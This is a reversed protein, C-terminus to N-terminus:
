EEPADSPRGSWRKKAGGKAAGGKAAGGKAAGGKAAGGKAGAGKRTPGKHHEDSSAPPTGEAGKPLGNPNWMGIKQLTSVKAKFGRAATLHTVANRPDYPLHAFLARPALAVSDNAGHLPLIAYRTSRSDWPVTVTRSRQRKYMKSLQRRWIHSEATSDWAPGDPNYRNKAEYRATSGLFTRNGTVASVIADNLLTQDDSNAYYPPKAFPVIEPVVEPWNQFLQVRWAVDDLLRQAAASGPRAYVVGANALATDKMAIISSGQMARLMPFPDHVWVTDTDAQLVAFGHRVLSAIYLKKIFYFRFRWDWFMTMTRSDSPPKRLTRSSWWCPPALLARCTTWSDALLLTHRRLGVGELSVLTNNVMQISTADPGTALVVLENHTNALLRAAAALAGPAELDGLGDFDAGRVISSMCSLCLSRLALGQALSLRM